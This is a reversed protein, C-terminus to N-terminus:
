IEGERLYRTNLEFKLKNTFICMPHTKLFNDAEKEKGGLHFDPTAESDM